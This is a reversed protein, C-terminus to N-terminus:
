RAEYFDDATARVNEWETSGNKYYRVLMRESDAVLGAIIVGTIIHSSKSKQSPPTQKSEPM